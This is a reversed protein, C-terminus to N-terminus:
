QQYALAMAIEGTRQGLVAKGGTSLQDSSQQTTQAKAQLGFALGALPRAEASRKCRISRFRGADKFGIVARCDHGQIQCGNAVAL